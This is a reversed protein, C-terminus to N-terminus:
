SEEIATLNGTLHDHNPLAPTRPRANSSESRKANTKGRDLLRQYYRRRPASPLQRPLESQAVSGRLRCRRREPLLPRGLSDSGDARECCRANRDAGPLLLLTGDARPFGRGTPLAPDRTQKPEHPHRLHAGLTGGPLRRSWATPRSRCRPAEAGLEPSLAREISYKFTAATVPQGSPPSFRFGSRITLTYTRGDRSVSPLREAVEPVLRWGAPAALDRYTLLRACTAYLLQQLWPWEKSGPAAGIAPDTGDLWDDTMRIQLIRGRTTSSRSGRGTPWLRVLHDAGGPAGRIRRRGLNDTPQAKRSM